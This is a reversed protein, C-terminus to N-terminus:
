TTTKKAANTPQQQTEGPFTRLLRGATLAAIVTVLTEVAQLATM